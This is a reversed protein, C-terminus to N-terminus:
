AGKAALKQAEAVTPMDYGMEQYEEFGLVDPYPDDAKIPNAKRREENAQRDTAADREEQKLAAVLERDDRANYLHQKISNEPRLHHPNTVLRVGVGIQKKLEGGFCHPCCIVDPCDKM